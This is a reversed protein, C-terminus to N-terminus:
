PPSCRAGTCARWVLDGSDCSWESLQVRLTGRAETPSVFTGSIRVGGLEWTFGRAAIAAIEAQGAELSEQYRFSEGDPARTLRQQISHGEATEGEFNLESFDVVDGLEGFLGGRTGVSSGALPNTACTVDVVLEYSEIGNGDGSIGLDITTEQTTWGRYTGGPRPIPANAPTPTAAETPSASPSPSVAIPSAQLSTAPTAAEEEGGGVCSSLLVSVAALVAVTMSGQNAFNM